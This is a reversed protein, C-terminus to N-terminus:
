EDGRKFCSIVIVSQDYAHRTWYLEHTETRTAFRSHAEDWAETTGEFFARIADEPITGHQRTIHLVQPYKLDYYFRFREGDADVILAERRAV